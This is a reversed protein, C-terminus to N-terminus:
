IQKSHKPSNQWILGNQSSYLSNMSASINSRKYLFQCTVGSVRKNNIKGTRETVKSMNTQFTSVCLFIHSFYWQHNVTRWFVDTHFHRESDISLTVANCSARILVCPTTFSNFHSYCVHSSHQTGPRLGEMLAAAQYMEVRNVSQM